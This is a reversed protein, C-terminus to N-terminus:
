VFDIKFRFIPNQDATAAALAGVETDIGFLKTLFQSVHGAMAVLLASIETPTRPKEPHNRYDDWAAFFEPNAAAVECDFSDLLEKLREPKYLDPYTFGPIGVRLKVSQGMNKTQIIKM